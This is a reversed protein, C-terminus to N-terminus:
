KGDLEMLSAVYHICGFSTKFFCHWYFSNRTNKKKCNQLATDFAKLWSIFSWHFNVKWILSMFLSLSWMWGKGPSPDASPNEKVWKEGLTIRGTQLAVASQGSVSCAPNWGFTVLCAQGTSYGSSVMLNMDSVNATSINALLSAWLLLDSSCFLYHWPGWMWM